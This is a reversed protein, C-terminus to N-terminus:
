LIALRVGVRTISRDKTMGGPGSAFQLKMKLSCVCASMAKELALASNHVNIFRGANIVTLQLWFDLSSGFRVGISGITCRPSTIPTKM